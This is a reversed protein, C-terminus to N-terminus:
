LKFKWGNFSTKEKKMRSLRKGNIKTKKILERISKGKIEEGDENVLSLNMPTRHNDKYVEPFDGDLSFLYGRTPYEKGKKLVRKINSKPVDIQRALSAINIDVFINGTEIHKAYVSDVVALTGPSTREELNPLQVIYNDNEYWGSVKLHYSLQAASLGIRESTINIGDSKFWIKKVKDFVELSKMETRLGMMYAHLLNGRYSTWELNKARPNHKDGDLHNVVKFLLPDPNIVWSEAVLRHLLITKNTDPSTLTLYWNEKPPNIEVEKKEELNFVNGCASVALSPHQSSQRFVMNNLIIEM